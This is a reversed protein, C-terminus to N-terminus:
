GYADRSRNAYSTERETTKKKDLPTPRHHHQAALRTQLLIKASLSEVFGFGGEIELQSLRTPELVYTVV